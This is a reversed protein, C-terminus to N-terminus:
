LSVRTRFEGTAEIVVDVDLGAWNTEDIHKNQSYSMAHKGIVIQGDQERAEHHWRGHASDFNLLHASGYADTATENIHVFEVGPWDYAVRLAMRGIRGFGNIAIKVSM